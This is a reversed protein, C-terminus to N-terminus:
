AIEITTNGLPVDQGQKYQPVSGLFGRLAVRSLKRKRSATTAVRGILQLATRKWYGSHAVTTQM